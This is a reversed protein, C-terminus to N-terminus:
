DITINKGEVYGLEHLGQLFADVAIKALPNKLSDTGLIGIRAPTKSQASVPHPGVTWCVASGGLLLICERRKM